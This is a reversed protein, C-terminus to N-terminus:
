AVDEAMCKRVQLFVTVGDGAMNVILCDEGQFLVSLYLFDRRYHLECWGPKRTYLQLRFTILTNEVPLVSSTRGAALGTGRLVETAMYTM